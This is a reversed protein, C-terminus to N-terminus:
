SRRASPFRAASRSSRRRCREPLRSSDRNQHRAAALAEAVDRDGMQRQARPLKRHHDSRQHSPPDHRRHWCLTRLRPSRHDDHRDGSPGAGRDGKVTWGRPYAVSFARGAFVRHASLSATAAPPKPRPEGGPATSRSRSLSRSDLAAPVRGPPRPASGIVGTAWFALGLLIGALSSVIALPLWARQRSRRTVRRSRSRAATPAASHARARRRAHSRASPRPELTRSPRRGPRQAAAPASGSQRRTPTRLHRLAASSLQVVTQHALRDSTTAMMGAGHAQDLLEAQTPGRTACPQAIVAVCRRPSTAIAIGAAALFAVASAAEHTADWSRRTVGNIAVPRARAPYHRHRASISKSALLTM